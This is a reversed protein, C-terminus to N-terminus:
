KEGRLFRKEISSIKKSKELTARMEDALKGRKDSAPVTYARMSGIDSIYDDSYTKILDHYFDIFSHNFINITSKANLIYSVQNASIGLMLSLDRTTFGAAQKIFFLKDLSQKQREKRTM